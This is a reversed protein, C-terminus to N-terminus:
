MLLCQIGPTSGISEKKFGDLRAFGGGWLQRFEKGWGGKEEELNALYFSASVLVDRPDRVITVFKTEGALEPPLEYSIPPSHSKFIYFGHYKKLYYCLAPRELLITGTVQFEEPFSGPKTEFGGLDKLM